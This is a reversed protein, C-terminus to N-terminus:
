NNASNNSRSKFSSLISVIEIFRKKRKEKFFDDLKYQVISALTLIIVLLIIAVFLNIEM